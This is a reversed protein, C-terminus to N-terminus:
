ALHYARQDVIKRDVLVDDLLRLYRQRQRYVAQQLGALLRVEGVDDDDADDEGGDKDETGDNDVGDVTESDLDLATGYMDSIPVNRLM